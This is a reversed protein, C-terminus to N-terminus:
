VDFLIYGWNKLTRAIKFYTIYRLVDSRRTPLTGYYYVFLFFFCQPLFRLNILYRPCFLLNVLAHNILKSSMIYIKFRM